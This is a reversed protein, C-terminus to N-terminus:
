ADPFNEGTVLIARGDRTRIELAVEKATEYRDDGAIREVNLGKAILEDEIEKSIAGEGGIIKVADVQLRQMEAYVEPLLIKSPNILIPSNHKYALPGSCLADPFNEGTTLIVTTLVSPEINEKSLAISTLYRNVGFYRITREYPEGFSFWTSLLGVVSKFVGGSVDKYGSSGHIRLTMVRPSAGTKLIEFSQLAGPVSTRSDSNLKSELASSSFAKTWYYDPSETCFGCPVGRLYPKPTGPWVNENNETHGGCSSHYAAVIVSGNYTIIKGATDDVSKKQIPANRKGVYYQCDPSACVDFNDKKHRSGSNYKKELVYSRAAVALVKLGEEPFSEPEEGLGYLYENLSLYNIAWLKGTNTSYRAEIFGDYYRDVNILKADGGGLPIIRVPLSSSFTSGTSPSIYYKGSSYVITVTGGPALSILTSNNSDTIQFSGSATFKISSGSYLGVKITQSRNVTTFATGTYYKTIISQYGYGAKAMGKVGRMCLGVGHNNGHGVILYQKEESFIKNSGLSVIIVVCIILTLALKMKYNM